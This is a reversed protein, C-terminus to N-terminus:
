NASKFANDFNYLLSAIQVRTASAKPSLLSANGRMIGNEVAWAMATRAYSGISSADAFSNVVDLDEVQTDYGLAAALRYLFCAAQERTVLSDPALETASVGTVIGKSYCWAVGDYYWANANMDTFPVVVSPDLEPCGAMRYLVVAMMARTMSADPAFTTSSTGSFYGNSYCHKVAEYGWHSPAVDTFPLMSTTVYATSWSSSQPYNVCVAIKLYKGDIRSSAPITVSLANTVSGEALVRANLSENTSGPNPDGNLEIVRYSYSSAGNVASWSLTINQGKYAVAPTSITAATQSAVGLYTSASLDIWGYQDLYKTYGFNGSVNTITLTKGAPLSAVSGGTASANTYLPSAANVRYIGTKYGVKTVGNLAANMRMIAKTYDGPMSKSSALVGNAYSLATQLASVNGTLAYGNTLTNAQAILASLTNRDSSSITPRAVVLISNAVRRSSSLVAELSGSSNEVTMQTSGGGDLNIGMVCGQSILYDGLEYVTMGAYSTTRGPSAVIVVTGDAKVGIGTRQARAKNFSDGLGNSSTVNVGNNVVHYGYTVVASNCNEMVTKAGAVTETATVKVTDGVALGRLSAAYGSSNSAYLVFRNNGIAAGSSVNRVAVVKGELTGGVTLESHNLKEFVVEVGAAKTDTSTGCASDYYYIGTYTKAASDPCINVFNLPATWAGNKAAISYVVRSWIFNATGDSQFALEWCGDHDNNGQIIKGDSIVVGGYTNCSSGTMSFFSANVGGKVDYGAAEAAKATSLTTGGYGSYQSYVLPVYNSTKPNFTLTQLRQNGGSNGKVITNDYTLGAGVTRASSSTVTGFGVKQGSYYASASIAGFAVSFLFLFSLVVSLLRKQIKM